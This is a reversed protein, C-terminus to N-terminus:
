KQLPASPNVVSSVSNVSVPEWKGLPCRETAMRLKAWTSCGCKRGRGTNNLAQADWEPCARCTAERTALAEPPTTSFGSRFFRASSNYFNELMSALRPYETKKTVVQGPKTISAHLDFDEAYIERLAPLLAGEEAAQERYYIVPFAGLDLTQWFDNVHVPSLWAHVPQDHGQLYRTQPLFHLSPFEGTQLTKIAEHPPLRDERCASFFKTIPDGIMLAVPNNPKRNYDLNFQPRDPASTGAIARAVHSSFVKFNQAISWGGRSLFSTSRYKKNEDIEKEKQLHVNFEATTKFFLVPM